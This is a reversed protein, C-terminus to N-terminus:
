NKNILFLERVQNYGFLAKEYERTKMHNKSQDCFLKICTEIEEITDVKAKKRTM